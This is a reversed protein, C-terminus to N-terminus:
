LNSCVGLAKDIKFSAKCHLDRLQHQLMGRVVVSVDRPLVQTRGPNRQKHTNGQHYRRLHLSVLDRCCTGQQPLGNQTLIVLLDLFFFTNHTLTFFYPFLLVFQPTFTITFIGCHCCYQYLPPKAMRFIPKQTCTGRNIHYCGGESQYQHQKSTCTHKRSGWAQSQQRQSTRKFTLSM